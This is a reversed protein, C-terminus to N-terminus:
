LEEHKTELRQEKQFVKERDILSDLKLAQHTMNM